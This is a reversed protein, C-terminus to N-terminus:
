SSPIWWGTLQTVGTETAAFNISEFPLGASAPTSTIDAKPHYLLQWNGQWYLLCLTLWALALGGLITVAVAALLWRLSVNPFATTNSLVQNVPPRKRTPKPAPM